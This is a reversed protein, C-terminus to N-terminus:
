EKKMGQRVEPKFKDHISDYKSQPKGRQKWKIITIHLNAFRQFRTMFITTILQTKLTTVKAKQEMMDAGSKM